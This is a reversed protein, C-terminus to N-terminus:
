AVCYYSSWATSTKGLHFVTVELWAFGSKYPHLKKINVSASTGNPQSVSKSLNQVAKQLVQTTTKPIAYDYCIRSEANFSSCGSSVMRSEFCMAVKGCKETNTSFSEIRKRLIDTYNVPCRFAIWPNINRGINSTMSLRLWTIYNTCPIYNVVRIATTGSRAVSKLSAMWAKQMVGDTILTPPKEDLCWSNSGSNQYESFGSRLM